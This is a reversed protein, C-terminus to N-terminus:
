SPIRHVSGCGLCTLILRDDHIRVRCNRGHILYTECVKCFQLRQEKSIRVKLKTSIRRAIGVYRRSKEPNRAAQDLLAKIRELAIRADDRRKEKYGM